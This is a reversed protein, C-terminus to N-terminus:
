NPMFEPDLPPTEPVRALMSSHHHVIRWRGDEECFVNTGVLVAAGVRERCVVIAMRDTLTVTPNEFAVKTTADQEFVAKWSSLIEDRGRVPPWGPHICTPTPGQAWVEEMAALDRHSFAEYFRENATRVDADSM